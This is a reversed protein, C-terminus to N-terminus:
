NTLLKIDHTPLQHECSLIMEVMSCPIMQLNCLFFYLYAFSGNGFFFCFFPLLYLVENSNRQVRYCLKEMSESKFDM